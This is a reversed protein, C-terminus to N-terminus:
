LWIPDLREEFSMDSTMRLTLLHSARRPAFADKRAIIYLLTGVM